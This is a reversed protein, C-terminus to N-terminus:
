RPPSTMQDTVNAAGAIRAATSEVTQKEADSDVKGRLTVKGDKTVITVNHARISLSKDRVLARRIDRTIDLDSKQNSQQQATVGGNQPPMAVAAARQMVPAAVFLATAGTLLFWKTSTKEM